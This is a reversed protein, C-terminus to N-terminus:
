YRLHSVYLGGGLFLLCYPDFKYRKSESRSPARYEVRCRRKRLIAEILVAINGEHPRFDKAGHAM